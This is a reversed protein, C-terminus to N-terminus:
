NDTSGFGGTRTNINLSGCHVFPVIIGQIFKDGMSIHCNKEVEIMAMIHGENEANCYDADIIGVTNTLRMGYKTGLGSRPCIILVTHDDYGGQPVWRIGTPILIKNEPIFDVDFPSHFDHGASKETSSNPLVINDYVSAIDTISMNPVLKLCDQEWQKYSIKEFKM